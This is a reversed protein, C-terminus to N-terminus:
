IRESPRQADKRPRRNRSQTARDAWVCNDPSYPGNNDLREITMGEARDGMDAYFNEFTQWRDCIAIGRAGYNVYSPNSPNLCRQRMLSWSIHARSHSKGHRSNGVGILEKKKCGCSKLRDFHDKRM